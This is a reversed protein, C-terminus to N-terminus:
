TVIMLQNSLTAPAHGEVMGPKRTCHLAGNLESEISSPQTHHESGCRQAFPQVGCNGVHYHSTIELVVFLL